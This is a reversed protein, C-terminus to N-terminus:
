LLEKILTSRDKESLYTFPVDFVTRAGFLGESAFTYAARAYATMISGTFEPNSDLKLSFEIVHENEGTSGSHLVLGGHPMRFHNALLEDNEIFNVTTDYDSFYNPMSKIRVEIEERNAHPEAVVYCERHHKERPTLEPKSGSRVADIAAEVPVTYQIANKVGEIHRIADSHGQSVGKGWFTYSKGDPLVAGTLVRMLSFLGPDWGSSIIASTNVAAADIAALYEPIKAHTDFSDVINFMSAFYPGQEPLDTASGGCLIMVDIEGQMKAADRPALIPVSGGGFDLLEPNRRSFVAALEMDSAAVVAKHVGKGINGYGVIGIKICNMLRVMGEM